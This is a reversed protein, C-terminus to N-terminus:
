LHVTQISSVHRHGVKVRDLQPEPVDTLFCAPGEPKAIRNGTGLLCFDLQLILRIHIQLWVPCRNSIPIM